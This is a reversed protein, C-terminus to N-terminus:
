PNCYECHQPEAFLRDTRRETHRHACSVCAWEQSLYTATPRKCRGCPLGGIRRTIWYGPAHCAPCNSQLRQLLDKAAEGIRAMRTPNAFARLDLEVFVERNSALNVCHEFGARLSTWDGIGKILRPDDQGVPRIVLQHSPFGEENAFRELADWDSTQLHGSQAPGQAMGVVEIGLHDDLWVLMEVNWPFMGTFPDSGFSGESALGVPLGSLTMGMRAKERAAELQSGPRPIDRTFTGLQDTDFHDVHHVVCGLGPELVPAIVREKGHQTLLAVRQDVWHKM